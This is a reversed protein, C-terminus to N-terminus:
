QNESFYDFSPYANKAMPVEYKELVDLAAARNVLLAHGHLVSGYGTAVYDYRECKSCVDKEILGEECLLVNFMKITIQAQVDSIIRTATEFGNGRTYAYAQRNKKLKVIEKDKQILQKKNTECVKDRESFFQDILEDKFNKVKETNDMYTIIHYCERETLCLAVTDKFRKLNPM